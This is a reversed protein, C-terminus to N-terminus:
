VDGQKEEEMHQSIDSFGGFKRQDLDAKGQLWEMPKRQKQNMLRILEIVKKFRQQMLRRFMKENLQNNGWM